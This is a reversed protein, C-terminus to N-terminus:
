RLTWGGGPLPRACFTRRTEVPTATGGINVEAVFCPDQRQFRYGRVAPVEYVGPGPRILDRARRGAVQDQDRITLVTSCEGNRDSQLDVRWAVIPEGARLPDPVM